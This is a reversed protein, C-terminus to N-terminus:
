SIVSFRHFDRLQSKWIKLKVRDDENQKPALFIVELIGQPAFVSVDWGVLAPDPRISVHSKILSKARRLIARKQDRPLLAMADPMGVGFTWSAGAPFQERFQRLLVEMQPPEGDQIRILGEDFAWKLAVKGEACHDLVRNDTLLGSFDALFFPDMKLTSADSPEALPEFFIISSRDLFAVSGSCARIREAIVHAMRVTPNSKQHRSFRLFVVRVPGRINGLKSIWIPLALITEVGEPLPREKSVILDLWRPLLLGLILVSVILSIRFIFGVKALSIMLLGLAVASSVGILTKLRRECFLQLQHLNLRSNALLLPALATATLLGKPYVIFIIALSMSFTAAGILWSLGSVKRVFDEYLRLTVPRHLKIFDFYFLQSWDQSATLLPMALYVIFSFHGGDAKSHRGLVLTLFFVCDLRILLSAFGHSFVSRWIVPPRFNKKWNAKLDSNLFARKIFYLSVSSTILGSIWVSWAVSWPGIWKWLVPIVIVQTWQTLFISPLNRRIRQLAYIGSHLTRICLFVAFQVFLGLVYLHSIAFVHYHRASWYVLLSGGILVMAGVGAARMVWLSISASALDQKKAHSFRRVQERMPELAGWWFNSTLSLFTRVIFLDFVVARPFIRIMFFYEIIHTASNLLTKLSFYRLRYWLYQNPSKLVFVDDVLALELHKKRQREFWEALSKKKSSAQQQSNIQTTMSFHSEPRTM